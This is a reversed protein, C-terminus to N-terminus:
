PPVAQQLQSGRYRITIRIDCRTQCPKAARGLEQAACVLSFLQQTRREPLMGRILPELDFRGGRCRPNWCDLRRTLNTKDYPGYVKEIGDPWAHVDLEIEDISPFVESFVGKAFKTPVSTSRRRQRPTPRFEQKEPCRTTFIV